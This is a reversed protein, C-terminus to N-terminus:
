SSVGGSNLRDLIDVLIDVSCFEFSGLPGILGIIHPNISILSLVTNFHMQGINPFHEFPIAAFGM